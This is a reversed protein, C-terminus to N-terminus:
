FELDKFHISISIFKNLGFDDDDEENKWLLMVDKQSTM